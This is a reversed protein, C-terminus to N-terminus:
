CCCWPGWTGVEEETSSEMGDFTNQVRAEAAAPLVAAAGVRILAGEATPVAGEAPQLLRQAQLVPNRRHPPTARVNLNSPARPYPASVLGREVHM